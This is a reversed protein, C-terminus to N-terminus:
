VAQGSPCPDNPVQNLYHGLEQHAIPWKRPRRGKDGFIRIEDGGDDDSFSTQEQHVKSNKGNLERYSPPILFKVSRWPFESIRNLEEM